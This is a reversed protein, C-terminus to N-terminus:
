SAAALLAANKTVAMGIATTGEPIGAPMQVM